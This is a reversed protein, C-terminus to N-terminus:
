WESRTGATELMRDIGPVHPEGRFNVANSFRSICTAFTKDCGERVSYGDGVVLTYPMPLALIFHGVTYEKVEMSLGSNAGSTFTIKGFTFTGAVQTRATDLFEQRSTATTITGTFTRPGMSVKCRSDGLQARCSPSYFEGLTHALRQSLGRVEAIFQHNKVTVEGLWGLRLKIVGQLLDAYNVQFVEVEAFDYKGAMVDAETIAGSSLMGEIDLNDVALTASGAVATPTFGTDAKYTVGSVVLDRDHDTFGMITTDTRTLKWCTALTTVEGTLHTALPTSLTKM